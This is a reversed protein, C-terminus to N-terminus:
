LLTLQVMNPIFFQSHNYALLSELITLDEMFKLEEAMNNM